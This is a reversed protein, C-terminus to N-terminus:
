LSFETMLREVRQIYDVAPIKWDYTKRALESMVAVIKGDSGDNVQRRM